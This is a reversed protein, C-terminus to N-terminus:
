TVRGAPATSRPGCRTTVPLRYAVVRHAEPLRERVLRIGAPNSRGLDQGLQIPLLLPEMTFPDKGDLADVGLAYAAAWGAVAGTAPVLPAADLIRQCPTDPTGAPVFFGRSSRRWRKSRTMEASVGQVALEAVSQALPRRAPRARMSIGHLGGEVVQHATRLPRGFIQPYRNNATPLNETPKRAFIGPFRGVATGRDILILVCGSTTATRCRDTV